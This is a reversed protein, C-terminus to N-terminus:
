DIRVRRVRVRTQDSSTKWFTIEAWTIERNIFRRENLEVMHRFDREAIAFVAVTKYDVISGADKAYDSVYEAHYSM